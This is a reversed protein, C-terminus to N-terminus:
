NSGKRVGTIRGDKLSIIRETEEALEQSHTILVITKGSEKHLSHFIDMVLRGTVSDLAGTPEDALIIAPDNAMARAIAVRQKQGGSLENPMHTMREEMGVLRLLEKARATRKTRSVGAYLMPLEVNKLATTRPVLNFTQFVFGVKANRIDSLKNDDLTGMDVGDLIYEGETPRDLAGIINMLTSKGSGSEGVISVFEGARVDLGIHDLVQLENPCGIFFRKVIDQMLIM